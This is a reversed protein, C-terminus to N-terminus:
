GYVQSFCWLTKSWQSLWAKLDKSALRFEKRTLYTAVSAVPIKKKNDIGESITGKLSHNLPRIYPFTTSDCPSTSFPAKYELLSENEACM